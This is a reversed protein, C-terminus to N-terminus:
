FRYSLNVMPAEFGPVLEISWGQQEASQGGGMRYALLGADVMSVVRNVILLMLHRDARQLYDNSEGRMNWYTASHGLHNVIHPGNNLIPMVDAAEWSDAQGADRDYLTQCEYFPFHDFGLTNYGGADTGHIIGDMFDGGWVPGDFLWEGLMWVDKLWTGAANEYALTKAVFNQVEGASDAPARGVYLEALLDVEGFGPGDGYEGYQGDANADYSGDLCSYYQDAPLHDQMEAGGDVWIGRVPMLNDGSEGGVDAADADGILLVYQTGWESYAATLFNRVSTAGDTGGDPRTGDFSALVNELTEITATLGGAIRADRLAELSNAGGLGVFAQPALIVYQYDGPPLQNPGLPIMRRYSDVPTVVDALRLIKDTDATEARLLKSVPGGPGTALTVTASVIRNVQGTRPQYSLPHLIVPLVAYGHKFQISGTEMWRGPFAEERLYIRPDPPTPRALHIRSLPVPQQAPSIDYLGEVPEIVLDSLRVDVVRHGYPLLFYLTKRPLLPEGPRGLLDAGPVALVDGTARTSHVPPEFDVSLFLEEAAAAPALLVVLLCLGVLTKLTRM